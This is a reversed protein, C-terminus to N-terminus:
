NRCLGAIESDEPMEEKDLIYVHGNGMITRTCALNVLDLAGPRYADLLVTKGDVPSFTGWQSSGKRIFLHTLMKHYATPVLDTFGSTTRGTALNEKYTALDRLMRAHEANLLGATAKEHLDKIPIQPSGTIEFDSLNAYSNAEKYIPMLYGVGALILPLEKRPMRPIVAKDIIRFFRLMEKKMERADGQGSTGHMPSGQGQSSNRTPSGSNSHFSPGPDIEGFHLASEINTEVEGLHIESNAMANGEWLHISHLSVCLLYFRDKGFMWPLLPELHFNADVVVTPTPSDPLFIIRSFDPTSLIALGKGHYSSVDNGALILDLPDLLSQVVDAAIARENLQKLALKRLDRLMVAGDRLETWSEELPMYISLCIGSNSRSVDILDQKDLRAEISSNSFLSIM